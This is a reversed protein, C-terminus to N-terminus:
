CHPEFSSRKDSMNQQQTECCCTIVVWHQRPCPPRAQFSAFTTMQKSNNAVTLTSECVYELNPAIACSRFHLCFSASVLEEDEELSELSENLASLRFFQEAQEADVTSISSEAKTILGLRAEFVYKQWFDTFYNGVVQQKFREMWRNFHVARDTALVHERYARLCNQAKTMLTDNTGGSDQLLEFIVKDMEEYVEEVPKKGMELLLSFDKVPNATGIKVVNAGLISMLDVEGNGDLRTKKNSTEM